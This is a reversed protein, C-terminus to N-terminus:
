QLPPPSPEAVWSSGSFRHILVQYIMTPLSLPLLGKYIVLLVTGVPRFFFKSYIYQQIYQKCSNCNGLTRLWAISSWESVLSISSVVDRSSISTERTCAPCQPYWPILFHESKGESFRKFKSNFRGTSYLFQQNLYLCSNSPKNSNCAKVHKYRRTKDIYM